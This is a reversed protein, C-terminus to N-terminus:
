FQHDKRWLESDNFRAEAEAGSGDLGMQGGM